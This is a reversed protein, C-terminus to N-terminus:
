PRTRQIRQPNWNTPGSLTNHNRKWRRRRRPATLRMEGRLAPDQSELELVEVIRECPVLEVFRGPFTDTPESTTGGPSHRPGHYTLTMRFRGGDRADFAPVHGTM